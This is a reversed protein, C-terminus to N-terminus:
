KNELCEALKRLTTILLEQDPCDTCPTPDITNNGTNTLNTQSPLQSMDPDTASSFKDKKEISKTFDISLPKQAAFNRYHPGYGVITPVQNIRNDALKKVIAKHFAVYNGSFLGNNWTNIFAWTFFSFRSNAISLKDDPCGGMHLMTAKMKSSEKFKLQFPFNIKNSPLSNKDSFAKNVTESHCSDSAMLIRVGRKFKLWVENLDDDVIHGNYAVLTEDQDDEEDGSHDYIQSGHGSFYFVFMDGIKSHRAAERLYKFINERTAEKTILTKCFFGQAKLTRHMALADNKCAPLATASTFAPDVDEVGVILARGIGM